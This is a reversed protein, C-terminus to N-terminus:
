WAPDAVLRLWTEARGFTPLVYKRDVVVLQEGDYAVRDGEVPLRELACRFPPRDRYLLVVWQRGPIFLDYRDVPHLVETM